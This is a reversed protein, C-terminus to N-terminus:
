YVWLILMVSLLNFIAHAIICPLPDRLYYYANALVFGLFFAGVLESVSGYAAHTLAFLLSSVPVGVKPVLLARFFLEESFPGLTFAIVVLYIPLGSVVDIIKAQDGVGAFHLALNVLFSALLMLFFIGVGFAVRKPISGCGRILAKRRPWLFFIAFSLFSMHLFLTSIHTVGMLLFYILSAALFIASPKKGIFHFIGATFLLIAAALHFDSYIGSFYSAILFILSSFFLSLFYQKQM